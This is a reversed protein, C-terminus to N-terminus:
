VNKDCEEIHSKETARFEPLNKNLNINLHTSFVANLCVFLEREGTTQARYQWLLEMKWQVEKPSYKGDYGFILDRM